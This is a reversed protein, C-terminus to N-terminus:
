SHSPYPNDATYGCFFVNGDKWDHSLEFEKEFVLDFTLHPRSEASLSGIIYKKDDIKMCIPVYQARKINKVEGLAVQIQLM